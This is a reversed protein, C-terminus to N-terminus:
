QTEIAFQLRTGPKLSTGAPLLIRTMPRTELAPHALTRRLPESRCPVRKGEPLMAFVRAPPAIVLDAYLQGQEGLLAVPRGPLVRDGPHLELLDISGAVPAKVNLADMRSRLADVRKQLTSVANEATERLSFIDSLERAVRTRQNAAHDLRDKAAAKGAPAARDYAELAAVYDSEARQRDPHMQLLTARAEPNIRAMTNFRRDGTRRFQEAREIDNLYARLDPDDLRVIVEGAGVQAGERMLVESVVGGTTSIVPVTRREVVGDLLLVAPARRALLLVATLAAFVGVASLLGFRRM